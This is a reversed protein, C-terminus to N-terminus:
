LASDQRSSRTEINEILNNSDLLPDIPVPAEIVAAGELLNIVSYARIENIIFEDNSVM